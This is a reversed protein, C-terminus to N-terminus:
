ACFYPLHTQHSVFILMGDADGKWSEVMKQDEELARDLYMSFLSESGDTERRSAEDQKDKATDAISTTRHLPLGPHLGLLWETGAGPGQEVLDINEPSQSM